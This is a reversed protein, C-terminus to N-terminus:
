LARTLIERMEDPTLKIPNGQTSSAASAKEILVPFDGPTMEYSALSSVQLAQCLEQVWAVGDDATSKDNGTLIRAIEDYRRLAESGPSRERLARV